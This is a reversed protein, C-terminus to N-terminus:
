LPEPANMSFYPSIPWSTFSESALSPSMGISMRGRKAISFSNSSYRYGPPWSGGTRCSFTRGNKAPHQRRSSPRGEYPTLRDETLIGYRGAKHDSPANGM